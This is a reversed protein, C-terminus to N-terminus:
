RTVMVPCPAHQMVRESVSGMVLKQITSRGRRGVVILDSHEKEAHRIIQEAPHGVVIATEVPIGNEAASVAIKQLRRDYHDHADDLAAQLEVAVFPEPLQAVALITVKSGMGFAVALALELAKEAEQSGDYGVLIRRFHGNSQNM